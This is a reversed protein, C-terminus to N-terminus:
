DILNESAKALIWDELLEKLGQNHDIASGFESLLEIQLETSMEPIAVAKGDCFAATIKDLAIDDITAYADHSSSYATGSIEFLAHYGDSIDPKWYYLVTVNM